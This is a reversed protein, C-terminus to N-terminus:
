EFSPKVVDEFSMVQPESAPLYNYNIYHSPENGTLTEIEYTGDPNPRYITTGESSIGTEGNEGFRRWLGSGTEIDNFPMVDTYSGHHGVQIDQGPTELILENTTAGSSTTGQWPQGKAFSKGGHSNGLSKHMEPIAFNGSRIRERNKLRRSIAGESNLNQPVTKGEPLERYKGSYM